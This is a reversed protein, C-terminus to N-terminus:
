TRAKGRNWCGFRDRHAYGARELQELIRRTRTVDVGAFKAITRAQRPVPSTELARAVRKAQEDRVASM